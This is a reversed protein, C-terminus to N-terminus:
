FFLKMIYSLILIPIVDGSKVKSEGHSFDNFVRIVSFIDPINRVIFGQKIYCHPFLRPSEM